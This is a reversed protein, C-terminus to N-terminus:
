QTHTSSDHLDKDNKGTRKSYWLYGGIAPAIALVASLAIGIWFVQDKYGFLLQVVDDISLVVFWILWAILIFKWRSM